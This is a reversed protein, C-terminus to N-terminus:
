LQPLRGRAKPLQTPEIFSHIHTLLPGISSLSTIGTGNHLFELGRTLEGSPEEASPYVAAEFTRCYYTEM